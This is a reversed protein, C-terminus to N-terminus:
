LWHNTKQEKIKKKHLMPGNIDYSPFAHVYTELSKKIKLIVSSQIYAGYIVRGRNLMINGM